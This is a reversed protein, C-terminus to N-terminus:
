GRRGVEEGRRGNPMGGGQILAGRQETRRRSACLAQTKVGRRRRASAMM